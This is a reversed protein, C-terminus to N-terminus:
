IPNDERKVKITKGKIEVPYKLKNFWFTYKANINPMNLAEFALEVHEKPLTHRAWDVHNIIHALVPLFIREIKGRKHQSKDVVIIQYGKMLWYFWEDPVSWLLRQWNMQEVDTSRFYVMRPGHCQTLNHYTITKM